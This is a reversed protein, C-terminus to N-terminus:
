SSSFKLQGVKLQFITLNHGFSYITLDRLKPYRTQLEFALSDEWRWGGQLV